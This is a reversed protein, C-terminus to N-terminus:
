RQAAHTGASAFTKLASHGLRILRTRAVSSVRTLDEDRRGLLLHYIKRTSFTRNSEM